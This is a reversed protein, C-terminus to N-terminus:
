PMVLSAISLNPLQYFNLYIKRGDPSSFSFNAPDPDPIPQSGSAARFDPQIDETNDAM